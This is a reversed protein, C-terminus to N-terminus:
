VAYNSILLKLDNDFELGVWVTVLKKEIGFGVFNGHVTKKSFIKYAMFNLTKHTIM